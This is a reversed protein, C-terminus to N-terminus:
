KGRNLLQRVATKFNRLSSSTGIAKSQEICEAIMQPLNPLQPFTPSTKSQVYKGQCLVNIQLTGDKRFRWLEPVGLGQYNDLETRSTIDIEIALDPPPDITLDIKDKGIVAHHSAIYFSEDPEVGQNM